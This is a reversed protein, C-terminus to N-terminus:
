RHPMAPRYLQGDWSRGEVVQVSGRLVGIEDAIGDFSADKEPAFLATRSIGVQTVHVDEPLDISELCYIVPGRQVALHNRTEEVLPHSEIFLVPMELKLEVRDGISWVRDLKVYEGPVLKNEVPVGNITLAAAPCWGPIRLMLAFAAAAQTNISLSVQGDWPYDTQQIIQVETGDNM